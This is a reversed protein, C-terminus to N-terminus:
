KSQKALWEFLTTKQGDITEICENNLTYIWSWHGNYEYPTKDPNTYKGSTDVVRDLITYYVNNSGQALLRNYLANSFDDKPIPNGKEDYHISYQMTEQSLTGEAIPVTPDYLSHTLWIPLHVISEIKEDNLWDVSYAECIPFAAAFYDPYTFLMNVTMYGGNSCGGLYVRNPDINPHDKVFTTILSYLTETYYSAGQSTPVNINYTGSGDVDMWMTPTQPALIYAGTTGFLSQIEDSALHVVKNGLIAISTDKGGEGAGHLWIILPVSGPAASESNATGNSPEYYAYLLDISNESFPQNHVFKDSLPKLDGTFQSADTESFTISKGKSSLLTADQHLSIFYSTKVYTNVGASFDYNFPSSATITPGVEMELCISSGADSPNGLSDSVYAKLVKRNEIHDKEETEATFTTWDFGKYFRNSRVLFDEESFSTADLETNFNLVVRSVAPGWDYGETVTKYTIEVKQEMEEGKKTCGILLMCILVIPIIRKNM